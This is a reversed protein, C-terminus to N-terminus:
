VMTTVIHTYAFAVRTSIQTYVFPLSVHFPIVQLQVAVAKTLLITRDAYHDETPIVEDGRVQLQVAM